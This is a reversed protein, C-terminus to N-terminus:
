LGCHQMSHPINQYEPSYNGRSELLNSKEYDWSYHAACGFLHLSFLFFLMHAKPISVLTNVWVASSEAVHCSSHLSTDATIMHINETHTHEHTLSPSLM